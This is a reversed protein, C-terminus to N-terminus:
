SHSEASKNRLDIIAQQGLRFLEFAHQAVRIAHEPSSCGSVSLAYSVGTDLTGSTASVYNAETM